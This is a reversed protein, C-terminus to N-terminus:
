SPIDEPSPFLKFLDDFKLTKMHGDLHGQLFTHGHEDIGIADPGGGVTKAGPGYFAIYPAANPVSCIAITGKDNSVWIGLVGGTNKISISGAKGMLELGDETINM